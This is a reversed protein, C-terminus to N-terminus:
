FYFNKPCNTEIRNRWKRATIIENEIIKEATIMENDISKPEIKKWDNRFEWDTVSKKILETKGIFDATKLAFRKM